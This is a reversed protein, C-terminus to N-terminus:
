RRYEEITINEHSTGKIEETNTCKWNELPIDFFFDGPYSRNWRCIILSEIKKEYQKIAENEVFCYEGESAKSLFDEDSVINVDSYEAFQKASYANMWLKKKNILRCIYERLKRDQSQRRNNFMMGYDDDVCVIVNLIDRGQRNFIKM